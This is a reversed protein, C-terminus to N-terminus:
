GTIGSRPRGIFIGLGHQASGTKGSIQGYVSGAGNIVDGPLSSIFASAQQLQSAQYDFEAKIGTLQGIPMTDIGFHGKSVMSITYRFQRPNDADAEVSIERLYVKYNKSKYTLTTLKSSPDLAIQSQLGRLETITQFGFSMGEFSIEDPLDPWIQFTTGGMTRTENIQSRKQVRIKTPNVLFKFTGIKIPYLTAM